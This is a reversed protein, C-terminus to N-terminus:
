VVTTVDLTKFTEAKREKLSRLADNLTAAGIANQAAIIADRRGKKEDLLLIAAQVRANANAKPSVAIQRLVMLALEEDDRTPALAPEKVEGEVVERIGTIGEVEGISMGFHQAIKEARMGRRHLAKIQEEMARM